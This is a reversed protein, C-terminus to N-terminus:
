RVKTRSQDPKGTKSGKGKDLKRPEHLLLGIIIYIIAFIVLFTPLWAFVISLWEGGKWSNSIVSLGQFVNNLFFYFLLTILLWCIGDGFTQSRM